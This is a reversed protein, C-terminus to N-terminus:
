YRNPWLTTIDYSLPDSSQKIARIHDNLAADLDIDLKRGKRVLSDLLSVTMEVEVNELTDVTIPIENVVIPPDPPAEPGYVIGATEAKYDLYRLRALIDSPYWEGDVKIGGSMRANFEEDLRALALKKEKRLTEAALEAAWGAFEVLATGNWEYRHPTERFFFCLEQNVNRAYEGPGADRDVAVGRNTSDSFILKWKAM